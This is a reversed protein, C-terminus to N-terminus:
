RALSRYIEILKAAETEWNVEERAARLANAGHRDLLQPDDAYRRVAAAIADPSTEDVLIGCDYREIIGRWLPFDSAITPIGAAMYEFMKTPLSDLYAKTSQLAVVGVRANEVLDRAGLPSLLGHFQVKDWAPLTSLSEMIVPQGTGAVVLEWGAPFDEAELMQTMQVLGRETALVGVYVVSAARTSPPSLMADSGRIPPYNHVVSVRSASYREAIKETAAITHNSVRTLLVLLHALAVALRRAVNGLYPKSLMQAPLDEHADYIVKKGLLRLLPIAWALEPDHLHFISANTRLGARLAIASGVVVRKLRAYKKLKVVRVGTDPLTIENGVAILTVDYGAQALSAAERLHVRNDTWPHASSVHVVKVRGQKKAGM